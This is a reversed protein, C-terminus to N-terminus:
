NNLENKWASWKSWILNKDRYRVRFKYSGTRSTALKTIDVGANINIENFWDEYNRILDVVLSNNAFVQFHSAQLPEVGSYASGNFFGGSVNVTPQNPPSTFAKKLYFNDLLVNITPVQPTGQSYMRGEFKKNACDVDIVVYNFHDYSKQVIDINKMTAQYASWRDLPGGAGGSIIKYVPFDNYQGREYDHTHGGFMAAVKSHSRINSELWSVGTWQSSINWIESIMKHYFIFVFDISNNTQAADLTSQLWATQNSLTIGEANSVSVFLVRAIQFSYYYEGETGDIDEYKVYNLYNSYDNTNDVMGTYFGEHHGLTVMAPVNSSLNNMPVFWESRFSSWFTTGGNTVIDGTSMVLNVNDEIPTGFNAEVQTKMRSTLTTFTGASGQNDGCVIFRVRANVEGHLPQTKFRFIATETAGSICKYYYGTNATLGTLKVWHWIETGSFSYYSGGANETGLSNTTGYQVKSETTADTQWCVYVSTPTPTQLYPQITIASYVNVSLLLACFIFFKKM